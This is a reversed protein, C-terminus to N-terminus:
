AADGIDLCADSKRLGVTYDLPQIANVPLFGAEKLVCPVMRCQLLKFAPSLMVVMPTRM